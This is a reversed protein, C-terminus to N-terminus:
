CSNLLIDDYISFHSWSFYGFNNDSKLSMRINMVSKLFFVWYYIERLDTVHSRLQEMCVYIYTYIYICIYIYLTPSFHPCIHSFLYYIRPFKMFRCFAGNLSFLAPLQASCHEYVSSSVSMTWFSFLHIHSDVDYM